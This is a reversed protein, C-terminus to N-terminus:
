IGFGFDQDASAGRERDGLDQLLYLVELQRSVAQRDVRLGDDDLLAILLLLLTGKLYDPGCLLADAGRGRPFDHSTVALCIPSGLHTEGRVNRLELVEDAARFGFEVPCIRVAMPNQQLTCLAGIQANMM